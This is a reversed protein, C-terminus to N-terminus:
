YFNVNTVCQGSHTLNIDKFEKNSFCIHIYKIYVLLKSIPSSNLSEVTSIKIRYRQYQALTSLSSQPYRSRPSTPKARSRRTAPRPRATGHYCWCLHDPPPPPPPLPPFHVLYFVDKQPTSVISM